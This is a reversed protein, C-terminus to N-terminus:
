SSATCGCQALSAMWPCVRRPPSPRASPMPPHLRFRAFGAVGCLNLTLLLPPMAFASSSCLPPRDQPSGAPDRAGRDWAVPGAGLLGAGYSWCGWVKFLLLSFPVGVIVSFQTAVIRGHDPFRAAARDGIWGGMLGGLGGGPPHPHPPSATSVLTPSKHGFCRPLGARCGLRQCVTPQANHVCVCLRALVHDLRVPWTSRSWCRPM